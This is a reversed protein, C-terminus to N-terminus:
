CVIRAEVDSDNGLRMSFTEVPRNDFAKGYGAAIHNADYASFCFTTLSGLAILELIQM